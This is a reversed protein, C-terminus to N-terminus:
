SVVLNIIEVENALVGLVFVRALIEPKHQQRVLIKPFHLVDSICAYILFVVSSAPHAPHVTSFASIM